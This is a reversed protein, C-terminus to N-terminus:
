QFIEVTPLAPASVGGGPGPRLNGDVMGGALRAEVLVTGSGEPVFGALRRSGSM